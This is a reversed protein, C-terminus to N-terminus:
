PTGEKLMEALETDAVTDCRDCLLEGPSVLGMRCRDCVMFPWDPM